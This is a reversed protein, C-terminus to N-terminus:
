MIDGPLLTMHRSIYSILYPINFILNATSGQQVVEENVKLWLELNHPNTIEDVTVLSPGLPAFSDCSKGKVWQGTGELQMHRESVDHLIAYGAILDLAEEETVYSASKGMILALEVEWDTKESGPPLMIPDYPGCLATTSKFFLVPESPIEMGSEKAHDSYNLGICVIKSPRAVPAGWRIHTDVQPLAEDNDALWQQLRGVGDNAFFDEDFDEGFASLDRRAGSDDLYGPKELQPEGFRILKM